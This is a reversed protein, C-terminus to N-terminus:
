QNQYNYEYKQVTRKTNNEIIYTERLRGFADYDYYTTIGSPDTATLVGVLPKYTYTTIIANPLAKQLSGDKLKTEDPVLQASLANIGAVSFINKVTAEVEAYTYGTNKIEAIPYQGNYSWLYVTHNVGDKSFYTPNGYSDYNHYAMESYPTSTGTQEKITKPGLINGPFIDYLVDVQRTQKNDVKAITRLPRNLINRYKMENTVATNEDFCYKYAIENVLNDSGTTRSRTLQHYQPNEYYYDAINIITGNDSMEETKKSSLWVKAAKFDYIGMQYKEFSPKEPVREPKLYYKNFSMATFVPVENSQEIVKYTNYEKRIPTYFNDKFHYDTKSILLGEMYDNLSYPVHYRAGLHPLFGRYFERKAYEYDTKLVDFGEGIKEETVYTYQVASGSYRNLNTEGIEKLHFHVPIYEM